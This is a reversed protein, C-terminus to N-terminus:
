KKAPRGKKKEKSVSKNEAEIIETAIHRNVFIKALEGNIVNGNNLRAKM